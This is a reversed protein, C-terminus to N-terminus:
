KFANRLGKMRGRISNNILVDGIQIKVGGILNPDVVYREHILKSGWHRPTRVKEKENTTTIIAEVTNNEKHYLDDYVRVIDAIKASNGRDYLFKAFSRFVAKIEKSDQNASKAFPTVMDYLVAGYQKSSYNM